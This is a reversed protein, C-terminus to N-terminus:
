DPGTFSGGFSGFELPAGILRGVVEFSRLKGGGVGWEKVFVLRM